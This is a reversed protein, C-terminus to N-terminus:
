LLVSCKNGYFVHWNTDAATSTNATTVSSATATKITWNGSNETSTYRWWVGDTITSNAAAVNSLGFEVAFTDTGDSLNSITALYDVTIAGGTTYLTNNGLRYCAGGATNANTSVQGIGPHGVVPTAYAGSGGSNFNANSWNEAFAPGGGMFQENVAAFHAIDSFPDSGGAAAQFTPTVGVGNGTLVTGSAGTAINSPSNTAM